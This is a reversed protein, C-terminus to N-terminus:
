KERKRESERAKERKREREREKERKRERVKEKKREREKEVERWNERRGRGGQELREAREGHRPDFNEDDIIKTKVNEKQIPNKAIVQVSKAKQNRQFM